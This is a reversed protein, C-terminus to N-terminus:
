YGIGLMLVYQRGCWISSCSYDVPAFARDYIAATRHVMRRSVHAVRHRVPPPKTVEQASIRDAAQDAASAPQATALALSVSTVAALALSHRCLSRM